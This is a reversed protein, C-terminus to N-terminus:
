NRRLSQRIANVASDYKDNAWYVYIGTLGWALLIVFLGIPIGVSLGPTIMSGLLGKDFALVLIFGFYVGLMIISLVASVSWQRAVLAKFEPSNIIADPDKSM